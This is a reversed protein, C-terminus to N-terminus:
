PLDVVTIDLLTDFPKLLNGRFFRLLMFLKEPKVTLAVSDSSYFHVLTIAGPFTDRSLRQM